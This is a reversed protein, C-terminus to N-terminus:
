INYMEDLEFGFENQLHWEQDFGSTKLLGRVILFKCRFSILAPMNFTEDFTLDFNEKDSESPLRNRKANRLYMIDHTVAMEIKELEPLQEGEYLMQLALQLEKNTEVSPDSSESGALLTNRRGFGRLKEASGNDVFVSYVLTTPVTVIILTYM